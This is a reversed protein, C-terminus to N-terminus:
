IRLRGHGWSIRAQMLRQFLSDGNAGIIMFTGDKVAVLAWCGNLTRTAGGLYVILRPVVM